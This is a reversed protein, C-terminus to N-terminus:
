AAARDLCMPILPPNTLTLTGYNILGGGEFPSATDAVYGDTVQLSKLTVTVGSSINFVRM